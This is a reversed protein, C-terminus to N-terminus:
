SEFREKIEELNNHQMYLYLGIGSVIYGATTVCIMPNIQNRYKHMICTMQQINFQESKEQLYMYWWNRTDCHVLTTKYLMKELFM